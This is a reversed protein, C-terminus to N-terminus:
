QVTLTIAVPDGFVGYSDQAQAFLTYSGASWGATSITLTWVGTSTQTAYGLLTDASDLKGDGNSDMYLAVQTITAGASLDVINSASLTVSGGATVPNPSATLSGIVPSDGLFRVLAFGAGSVNAMGAQLIRGDPQIALTNYSPNVNTWPASAKASIGDTGFSTDPAGTALYRVLFNSGVGTVIKGDPQLAISAAGPQSEYAIGNTGFTSDLSGDVNLRALDAHATTADSAATVIKGDSARVAGVALPNNGLTSIQSVVVIGTGGFTTDLAGSATYRVVFPHGIGYGGSVFEAAGVVIITGNPELAVSAVETNGIAGPIAAYSTIVKGGNGFSTDLSGNVNFRALAIDNTGSAGNTTGAVLIEGNSQLVMATADDYSATSGSGSFHLTVLGNSGFSQDLTGDTTYRELAFAHAPVKTTGYWGAALIKGDAQIAVARAGSGSKNFSAAVTGNNGFSKDLSGNPDYRALAFAQNESVVTQGAAIIKSDNVSGANPYVAVANAFAGAAIATTVVGGTGFSTDLAGASPL